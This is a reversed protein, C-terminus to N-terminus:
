VSSTHNLNAKARKVKELIDNAKATWIVPKPQRNPEEIYAFIRAPLAEFSTRAGRRLQNETLDRFFREVMNLWSGSTPTFHFHLRRHRAAWRQVAPHKHTAYNDVVLHLQKDAPTQRDILLLFKLREQHRHHEMCAAMVTGDLTDLAAFLTTTGHRKYDHTVTNRRINL